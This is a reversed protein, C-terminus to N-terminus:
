RRCLVAGKKLMTKSDFDDASKKINRVVKSKGDATKEVIAGNSIYKVTLGLARSIRIAKIGGKQAIKILEKIDEKQEKQKRFVRKTERRRM